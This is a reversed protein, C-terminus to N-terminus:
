SAARLSTHGREWADLLHRTFLAEITALCGAGHVVEGGLSPEDSLLGGVMDHLAVLQHDADAVVHDAYFRTAADDFGLHELATQYRKMPEVSCMEFLALHGVLAGRWRRHLGFLSVLNCTSLSIGPILDLYAGYRNDLGMAAMTNAFLEAHVADPTGNGYEGAQIRVLAAKAQGTLRPIAWTHPDAEKLQYASRHVALERVETLTGRDVIYGSLSPGAPRKALAELASATQAASLGIAVHGVLETLRREFARELGRRATLLSPEWEWGEDVDPLGLYHLEYCLYLALASDEGTIPDDVPDPMTGVDHAPRALHCLLWSSVPGRPSPLM